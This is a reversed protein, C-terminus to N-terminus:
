TQGSKSHRVNSWVQQAEPGLLGAAVPLPTYIGHVTGESFLIVDGANTNPEYLCDGPDHEGNILSKPIPFNAKHSGRAIVFGGSGKPHDVLAVSCALLNNYM